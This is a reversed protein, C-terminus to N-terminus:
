EAGDLVPSGQPVGTDVSKEEGRVGDVLMSARKDSIFHYVWSTVASPLKYRKMTELLTDRNVNDFASKIDIMIATTDARNTKAQHVLELVADSACYEERAGFQKRPMIEMLLFALRKQFIKKLVKSLIKM